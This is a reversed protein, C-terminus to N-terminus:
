LTSPSLAALSALIVPCLWAVTDRSACGRRGGAVLPDDKFEADLSSDSFVATVLVDFEEVARVLEPDSAM